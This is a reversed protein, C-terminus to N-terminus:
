IEPQPVPEPPEEAPSSVGEILRSYADSKPLGVVVPGRETRLLLVADPVASVFPRTAAYRRYHRHYTEASIVEAEHVAGPAVTCSQRGQRLSIGDETATVHVAPRFGILGAGGLAVFSVVQGAWFLVQWDPHEALVPQLLAWGLYHTMLLALALGTLLVLFVAESRLRDEIQARVARGLLSYSPDYSRPARFTRTVTPAAHKPATRHSTM